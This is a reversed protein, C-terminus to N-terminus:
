VEWREGRWLLFGFRDSSVPSSIQSKTIIQSQIYISLYYVFMEQLIYFKVKEKQLYKTLVFKHIFLSPAKLCNRINRLGEWGKREM